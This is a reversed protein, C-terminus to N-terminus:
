PDCSYWSGTPALDWYYASWGPWGWLGSIRYAGGSSGGRVGIDYAYNSSQTDSRSDTETGGKTVTMTGGSLLSYSRCLGATVEGSGDKVSTEVYISYASREAYQHRAGAAVSPDFIYAILFDQHVKDPYFDQPSLLDSGKFLEPWTEVPEKVIRALIEWVAERPMNSVAYGQMYVEIALDAPSSGFPEPVGGERPPEGIPETIVTLLIHDFCVIVENTYQNLSESSEPATSPAIVDIRFIENQANVYLGHRILIDQAELRGAIVDGFVPPADAPGDKPCLLETNPDDYSSPDYPNDWSIPEKPPETPVETPAETAAETPAETPEETVITPSPEQNATPTVPNGCAVLALCIVLILRRVM